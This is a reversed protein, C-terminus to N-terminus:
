SLFFFPFFSVFFWFFIIFGCFFSLFVVHFFGQEATNVPRGLVAGVHASRLEVGSVPPAYSNSANVTKNEANLISSGRGSDWGLGAWGLSKNRPVGSCVRLFFFIVRSRDFFFNSWFRQAEEIEQLRQVARQQQIAASDM